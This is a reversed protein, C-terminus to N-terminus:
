KGFVYKYGVSVGVSAPINVETVEQGNVTTAPVFLQLEAFLNGFKFGKEYGFNGNIMVQVYSSSADDGGQIYYNTHDYAGYTTKVGALFIGVGAGVYLGGEELTGDGFFMRAGATISKVSIKQTTPVSIQAYPAGSNNADAYASSTRTKPIYFNFGARAVFKGEGLGYEGFVGIPPMAGLGFFYNVGTAAGVALQAKSMFVTCSFALVLLTKKM